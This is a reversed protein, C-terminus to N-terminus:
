VLPTSSAWLTGYYDRKQAAIDADFRTLSAPSRAALHNWSQSLNWVRAGGDVIVLRDHLARPPSLRVELKQRSQKIWREAAPKIAAPKSTAVDALLRVAVGSPTLPVFDTLLTADMYAEIFLVDKTAERLVRSVTQLADFPAGPGIFGGREGAPVKLEVRALVRHLIAVIEHGYYARMTPMGLSDAASRFAIADMAIIPDFKGEGEAKILADARGLWRYTGPTLPGEVFLDKPTESVLQGLQMYLSQPDVAMRAGIDERADSTGKEVSRGEYVRLM